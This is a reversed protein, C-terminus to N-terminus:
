DHSGGDKSATIAALSFLTAGDHCQNNLSRVAPEDLQSTTAMDEAPARLTM